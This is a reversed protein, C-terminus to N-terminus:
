IMEEYGLGSRGQVQWAGTLGPRRRLRSAQRDPDVEVEGALPPRPGVLSMDGKVVNLLQPLEDISTRRLPRGVRTVRPDRRVKFLPPEVENLHLIEEQLSSANEVMSRFKYMRFPRLGRGIREQAYIVPGPSDLRVLIAVLVMLPALVLLLLVALAVDIARKAAQRWQQPEPQTSEVVWAWPPPESTSRLDM